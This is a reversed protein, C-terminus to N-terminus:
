VLIGDEKVEAAAKALVKTFEDIVACRWGEQVARVNERVEDREAVFEEAVLSLKWRRM